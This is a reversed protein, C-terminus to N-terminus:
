VEQSHKKKLYQLSTQIDLSEEAKGGLNERIKGLKDDFGGWIKGM